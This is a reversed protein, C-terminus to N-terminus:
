LHAGDAEETSRVTAFLTLLFHRQTRSADSDRRWFQTNEHLLRAGGRFGRSRGLRRRRSAPDRARISCSTMARRRSEDGARAAFFRSGFPTLRRSDDDGVSGDIFEVGSAM